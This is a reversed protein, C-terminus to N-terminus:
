PIPAVDGDVNVELWISNGNLSIHMTADCTGTDFVDVVDAPHLVGHYRLVAELAIDSEDAGFSTDLWDQVAAGVTAANTAHRTQTFQTM